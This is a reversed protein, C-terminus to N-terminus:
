RGGLFGVRWGCAPCKIAYTGGLGILEALDDIANCVKEAAAAERRAQRLDSGAQEAETEEAEEFLRYVHGAHSILTAIQYEFPHSM